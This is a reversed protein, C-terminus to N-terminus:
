NYCPTNTRDVIEKIYKSCKKCELCKYKKIIDKANCGNDVEKKILTDNINKCVCIIM